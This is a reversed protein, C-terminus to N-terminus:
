VRLTDTDPEFAVLADTDIVAGLPFFPVAVPVRLAVNACALVLTEAGLPAVM